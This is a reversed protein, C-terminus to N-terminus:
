TKDGARTARAWQALREMGDEIKVRPRWGLDRKAASVDFWHASTLRGVLVRTLPPDSSLGLTRWSVECAKAAATALSLPASKEVPPLGAAALLRNVIEWFPRPDGSSIFYANGAIAALPSLQVAALLHADVADDIFISDSRKNHRGIRFTPLVSRDGPGWVFHPRLAVTALRDHNAALIMEEAQAKTRSYHSDFKAAYPAREDWGEVDRGDFVVSAASTYILRGIGHELCAKLVNRTGTVNSAFYDEHGGWLGVKSGAHFVIERDECADSVAAADALDGQACDIGSAELEPYSGRGFVRVDDGREKLKRAIAGGLFGGGGTVLARM